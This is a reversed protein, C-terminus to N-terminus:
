GGLWSGVGLVLPASSRASELLEPTARLVFFGSLALVVFVVIGGLKALRQVPSPLSLRSAVVVVIVALLVDFMQGRAGSRAGIDGLAPAVERAALALSFLISGALAARGVLRMRGASRAWQGFRAALAIAGLMMVASGIAFTTAGLPRHHTFVKLLAAFFMLPGLAILVAAPLPSAAKPWPRSARAAMLLPALLLVAGGALGVCAIPVSVAEGAVRWAAPVAVVLACLVGLLAGEGLSASRQM